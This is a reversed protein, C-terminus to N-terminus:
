YRPEHKGQYALTDLSDTYVMPNAYYELKLLKINEERSDYTENWLSITVFHFVGSVIHWLECSVFFNNLFATSDFTYSSEIM